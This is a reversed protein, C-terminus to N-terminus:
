PSPHFFEYSFGTYRDLQKAVTPNYTAYKHVLSHDNIFNEVIERHKECFNICRVNKKRVVMEMRRCGRSGFYSPTFRVLTSVIDMRQRSFAVFMQSIYITEGFIRFLAAGAAEGDVAILCGGKLLSRDRHTIHEDFESEVTERLWQDLSRGLTAEEEEGYVEKHLYEVYVAEAFERIFWERHEHLLPTVTIYHQTENGNKHAYSFDDTTHFLPIARGRFFANEKQNGVQLPDGIHAMRIATISRGRGQTEAM